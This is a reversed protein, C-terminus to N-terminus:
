IRALAKRDEAQPPREMWEHKILLNTLDEGVKMDEAIVRSYHLALDARTNTSLGVGYYAVAAKLFYAIHNLMLKDSFPAVVSKTIHDDWNPPSPLSDEALISSFIEVHKHAVEVIRVMFERVDKHKAVQSFGLAIGKAILTKKLNFFLTSIELANLRRREGVWGTLFNQKKVFDPNEPSPIYPPRHYLGKALLIQITANYLEMAEDNVRTFYQRLDERSTTSLAASYGFLGHITMEHLYKLWFEDTALCPAQLDVDEQTFGIPIPYKEEQFKHKLYNIHEESYHLAKKFVDRIEPEIATALVHKGICVAQSDNIFQEWLNNIEPATLKSNHLM